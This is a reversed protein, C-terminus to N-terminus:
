NNSVSIVSGLPEPLPERAGRLAMRLQGGDSGSFVASGSRLRVSYPASESAFDVNSPYQGRNAEFALISNSSAIAATQSRSSRAGQIVVFALLTYKLCSRM